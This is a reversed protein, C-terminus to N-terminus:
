STIVKFLKTMPGKPARREERSFIIKGAELQEKVGVSATVYEVKNQEAIEKVSFEGVPFILPPREIKTRGRHKPESPEQGNEGIPEKVPETTTIDVPAAPSFLTWFEMVMPEKENHAVVRGKMEPNESKAVQLAKEGDHGIVGVYVTNPYKSNRYQEGVVIETPKM